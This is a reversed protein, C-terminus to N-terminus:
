VETYSEHCSAVEGGPDARPGDGGENSSGPVFVRPVRDCRSLCRTSTPRPQDLVGLPRNCGRGNRRGPARRRIAPGQRPTVSTPSPIITGQTSRFSRGYRDNSAAADVGESTGTASRTACNRGQYELM